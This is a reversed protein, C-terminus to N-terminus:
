LRVPKQKWLTVTGCTKIDNGQRYGESRENSGSPAAARTQFADFQKLIFCSVNTKM